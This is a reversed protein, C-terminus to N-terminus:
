VGEWNCIEQPKYLGFIIFIPQSYAFNNCLFGHATKKAWGTYHASLLISNNSLLYVTFEMRTLSDKQCVFVFFDSCTNPLSMFQLVLACCCVFSVGVLLRAFCIIIM